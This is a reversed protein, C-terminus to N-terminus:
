YEVYPKMKMEYTFSQAIGVKQFDLYKSLRYNIFKEREVSKSADNGWIPCYPILSPVKTPL